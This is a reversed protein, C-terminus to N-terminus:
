HRTEPMTNLRSKGKQDIMKGIIPQKADYTKPCFEQSSHAKDPIPAKCYRCSRNQMYSFTGHNEKYSKKNM